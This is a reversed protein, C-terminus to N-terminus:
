MDGLEAYMDLLARAAASLYRDKRYAFVLTRRPQGDIPLYVTGPASGAAAKRVMAPVVTVGLGHAALAQATEVSSTEYAVRPSFGSEACLELVTGRFGFGRKLLIFPAQAFDALDIRLASEGGTRCMERLRDDMWRAAERPAALFLEETLMHKAALRDDQVPLALVCLDTLGRATLDQLVETADEVLRVRVTPHKESFACLLPPLVHGGTIAPAGIVLEQGIGESRERMERLLDDHLRVIQEAQELFRVGDPTAQAGGHGRFFLTVGLESELKAIQQSLSPQAIDLADAARTFSGHRQLELAYQLLRLEM